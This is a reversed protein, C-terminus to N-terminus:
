KFAPNTEADAAIEDRLACGMVRIGEWGFMRSWTWLHETGESRAYRLRFFIFAGFPPIVLGWSLNHWEDSGRIWRPLWPRTLTWPTWYSFEVPRPPPKLTFPDVIDTDPLTKNM